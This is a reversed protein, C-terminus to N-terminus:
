RLWSPPSALGDDVLELFAATSEDARREEIAHLRGYTFSSEGAADAAAALRVLVGRVVVSDQHAGLVDQVQQMQKVLAAAASGFVPEGSEAAYRVRKAAKRVDHLLPDEPGPTALAEDLFNRMRKHTRGIERALVEHAPKAVEKGRLAEGAAVHDLADLLRFYRASSLAPLARAHADRHEARLSTDIRRRVPGVVLARPQEDVAQRL